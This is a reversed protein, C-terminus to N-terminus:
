PPCGEVTIDVSFAVSSYLYLQSMCVDEVSLVPNHLTGTTCDNYALGDIAGTHVAFNTIYGCLDPDFSGGPNDFWAYVLQSGGDTFSTLRWTCEGLYEITGTGPPAYVTVGCDECDSCDASASGLGSRLINTVGREGLLYVLHELFLGAIGPIDEGICERLGLWGDHSMSFDDEMHDFLCCRFADWVDSTLAAILAEIGLSFILNVVVALLALFPNSTDIYTRVWTRIVDELDTKGMEPALQNFVEVAIANVGADAAACKDAQDGTPPPFETSNVRTDREPAPHYTAGGDESVELNGDSDYRYTLPVEDGCCAMMLRRQCDNVFHEIDLRDIPEDPSYWRTTFRYRDILALLAKAQPQTLCYTCERSDNPHLILEDYGLQDGNWATKPQKFTM